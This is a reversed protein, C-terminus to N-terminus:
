YGAPIEGPDQDKIGTLRGEGQAQWGVFKM